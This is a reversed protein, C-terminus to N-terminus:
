FYELRFRVAARHSGVAMLRNNGVLRLTYHLVQDKGTLASLPMPIGPFSERGEADTIHLAVGQSSGIIGFSRGGRDDTGDFTVRVHQWDPLSEGLRIASHRTLACNVLRLTFPHPEGQGDRALRGIPTPDMEITQYTDTVELNCAADFIEGGLNVKGQGQDAAM